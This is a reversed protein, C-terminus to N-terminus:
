KKLSMWEEVRIKVKELDSVNKVLIGLTNLIIEPNKMPNKDESMNRMVNIWVLLEATSPYRSLASQPQRLKYFFTIADHLFEDSQEAIRPLRLRIIENLQDIHPFEIHHFVCRRLFAEPLQKESNSTMIVIPRMSDPASIYGKNGLQSIKFYMKELENLIDNPFDRPAKDIEDILVVSRKPGKYEFDSPLFEKIQDIPNAHIIALGLANYHIYDHENTYKSSTQLAHFHALTNYTYFLDQATSTSKTEFSLTELNLEWAVRYAM